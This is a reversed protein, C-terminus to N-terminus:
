STPADDQLASIVRELQMGRSAKLWVVGQGWHEQLLRAAEQATAAELVQRNAQTRRAAQSMSRAYQGVCILGSLEDVGAISRAAEEHWNKAEEGLEMMQGLVAIRPLHAPKSRQWVLFSEFSARVSGPNANYADDVLHWPGVEVVRWRGGPVQM